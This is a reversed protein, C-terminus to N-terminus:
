PVMIEVSPVFHTPSNLPFLRHFRENNSLFPFLILHIFPFFCYCEKFGVGIMGRHTVGVLEECTLCGGLSIGVNKYFVGLDHYIYPEGIVVLLFGLHFM